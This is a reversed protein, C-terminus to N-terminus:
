KINFRTLAYREADMLHNSKDEPISIFEGTLKDEKYKYSQKENILNKSDATVYVEYEKVKNIGYKISDPGKIAGIIKVGTRRISKPEASDAIVKDDEKLIGKLIDAIDSNLLGTKYLHEKEHITKEKENIRLEILTTPDNTYGFDLGFIRFDYDDTLKDCIFWNTKFKYVQGELVGWEGDIYVRKFNEDKNALKQLNSVTQAPVFQNDLFTSHIVTCDSDDMYDTIWFKESPNFAIITSIRQRPYLEKFIAHGHRFTNVEDFFHYDARVGRYKDPDDASVFNIKSKTKPILLYSDQRHFHRTFYDHDVVYRKFDEILTTKLKPVTKAFFFIQLNDNNQALLFLVQMASVTKSSSSGGYTVILPVKDTVANMTKYFVETLEM